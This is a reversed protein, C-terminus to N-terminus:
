EDSLRHHVPRITLVWRGTLMRRLFWISSILLLLSAALQLGRVIREILKTDELTLAVTTGAATGASADPGASPSPAPTADPGPSGPPVTTKILESLNPLALCDDPRDKTQANCTPQPPIIIDHILGVTIWGSVAILVIPIAVRAVDGRREVDRGSKNSHVVGAEDVTIRDLEEGGTLALFLWFATYAGPVVLAKAMGLVGGGTVLGYGVALILLVAIASLHLRHTVPKGRVLLAEFESQTRVRARFERTLNAVARKLRAKREDDSPLVASPDTALDAPPPETGGGKDGTNAGTM